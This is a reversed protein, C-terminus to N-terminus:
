KDYERLAKAAREYSVLKTPSDHGFELSSWSELDELLERAADVVAQMKELEADARKAMNLLNVLHLVEGEKLNRNILKQIASM